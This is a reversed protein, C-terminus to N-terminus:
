LGLRSPRLDALERGARGEIVLDAVLSATLPALLVGTRYHGAAYFVNPMTSSPGIAPLEDMTWPRLGARVDVIRAGRLAPVIDAAALALHRAGEATSSEDFGVDEVTAGVLVSGDTWPVMYCRGGWIVRTLLPEEPHLQVLQGRIPKVRDTWTGSAVIAADAAVPGESTDVTVGSISGTINTVRAASAVAGRKLAAQHLARTLAHAAVFGHQPILLGGIVNDLAGELQRLQREDVLRHDISAAALTHALQALDLAEDRTQAVQLSGTRRYEVATGSDAVVREIFRDYMALSRIGLALMITSHGEIFPVLTGASARTGGEGPPRPDIIHVRAGRSALEYAIACGVIGAGAVIIRV